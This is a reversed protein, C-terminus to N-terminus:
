IKGTFRKFLKIGVVAVTAVGIVPWIASEMATIAASSDTFVATAATPMTYAAQASGTFAAACATGVAGAAVGAKSKVSQWGQKIKQGLM